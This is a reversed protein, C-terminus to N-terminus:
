CFITSYDFTLGRALLENLIRDKGSMLSDAHNFECNFRQKTGNHYLEQDGCDYLQGALMKERETM